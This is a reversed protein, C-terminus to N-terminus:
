GGRLHHSASRKTCGAGNRCQPRTRGPLRYSGRGDDGDSAGSGGTAPRTPSPTPTPAAAQTPEPTPQNSAYVLGGAVAVVVLASGIVYPWRSRGSKTHMRM